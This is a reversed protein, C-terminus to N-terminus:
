ESQEKLAAGFAADVALSTIPCWQSGDLMISEDTSPDEEGLELYLGDGVCLYVGAGSSDSAVAVFTQGVQPPEAHISKMM